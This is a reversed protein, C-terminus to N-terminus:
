NKGLALMVIVYVNAALVIFFILSVLSTIFWGSSYDIFEGKETEDHPLVEENAPQRDEEQPASIDVSSPIDEIEVATRGPYWTGEDADAVHETIAEKEKESIEVPSAQPVAPSQPKRVRMMSKSSTLYILPFAVFPLVISLAVQSAVLLADIGNRGVAIAVVM